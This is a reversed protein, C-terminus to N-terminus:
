SYEGTITFSLFRLTNDAEISAQMVEGAKYGSDESNFDFEYVYDIDYTDYGISDIDVAVEGSLQDGNKWLAMRTHGPTAESSSDNALNLYITNINLDYPIVFGVSDVASDDISSSESQSGGALPIFTRTSVGMWFASKIFFKEAM